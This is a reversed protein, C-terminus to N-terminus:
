FAGRVVFWALLGVVGALLVVGYNRVFGTQLPRLWAGVRRVLVGAGNVAGDIIDTDVVFALFAAGLKGPLVLLNGVIDDVYYGNSVWRWPGKAGAVFAPRDYAEAGRYRRWAYAIGLLAVAVSAVALLLETSGEPAHALEVGEFSPELFHELGLRFPTNVLGAVVSGAALGVLPLTMWRSAEHPHVDQGWRREGLFTLVLWRTMYVATLLATILGVVWLVLYGGGRNYTVALIEDKSWFGALPPIGSIALWAIFSTAFTIPMVKRLGGMRAVDQEDALAHIVSGAALFLLAKFFAHTFLHFVGAVYAGVGVGLFMYGLQSITSYALVRKIDRQMLAISAAFLATVAGVVAVLGASFPALEYLPATRAVMYVGATVMTAAHILASVPTPGEMADPLWMHLPLQASKGAAGLALLLTIATASASTIV